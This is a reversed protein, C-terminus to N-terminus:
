GLALLELDARRSGAVAIPSEPPLMKFVVDGDGCAFDFSM